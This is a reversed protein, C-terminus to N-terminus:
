NATVPSFLLRSFVVVVFLFWLFRRFYRKIDEFKWFASKEKFVRLFVNFLVDRPPFFIM